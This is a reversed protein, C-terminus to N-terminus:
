VILLMRKLNLVVLHLRICEANKRIRFKGFAVKCFTRSLDSLYRRWVEDDVKRRITSLDNGRWVGLTYLSSPSNCWLRLIGSCWLKTIAGM